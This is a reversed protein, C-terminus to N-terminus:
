SCGIVFSNLEFKDVSSNPLILHYGSPVGGIVCVTEPVSLDNFYIFDIKVRSPFTDLDQDSIELVDVLSEIGFPSPSVNNSFRQIFSPAANPSEVYYSGELFEFFNSINSSSFSKNFERVTNSVRNRTSVTYLPDRLNSIPVVSEYVRIYSWNALGTTDLILVSANISVFLNWADFQDLVIDNIQVDVEIGFNSAIINVRELYVSLSSNDMIQYASGNILGSELVEVFYAETDNLFSGTSAIHEELAVMSRFSAINLARELDQNFGSVFDNAFGVRRLKSSVSEDFTFDQMSFFVILLVSVLLGASIVYIFGRKNM